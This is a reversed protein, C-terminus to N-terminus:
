RRRLGKRLRKGPRHVLKLGGYAGVAAAVGLGLLGLRGVPTLARWVWAAEAAAFVAPAERRLDHLAGPGAARVVEDVRTLGRVLPVVARTREFPHDSRGSVIAELAERLVCADNSWLTRFAVNGNSDMLHAANSNAGLARHFGGELDDVAVTWPIGDRDRLMKAHRHKWEDTSPQPLLEGPHAERVYVTVFAVSEGFDRYLAKLVPSASATMPDTMCGFTFLVPRRGMFDAKRIRVGSVTPLDFDPMQWGPDKGAGFSRDDVLQQRQFHDFRYSM